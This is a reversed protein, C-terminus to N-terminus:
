SVSQPLYHRYPLKFYRGMIGNVRHSEPVYGHKKLIKTVQRADYRLSNHAIFESVTMEKIEYEFNSKKGNIGSEEALADLVDAEGKLLKEHVKNRKALHELETPALRFCSSKDKAKVIYYIQAWLQLADFPAIQTNYDIVLNDDLPITLFRRNGTEDILYEIDNVTGAIATRRPYTLFTRGYPVRYEDVSNTIFSKVLDIDKRMTSGIEGLEVIWKDTIQMVSDKNRPDLCMGGGFYQPALALHELFRTKGIGQKGQLVLVMDASFPARIDNYLVCVCQMLWKQIFIRSYIGEETDAPIKLINYIETVRDKGDWETHTILELIPNYKRRTALLLIYKAIVQSTVGKYELKLADELITPINEDLHEASERNDFGSFDIKKTIDNFRMNYGHSDVYSLFDAFQIVKRKPKDENSSTGGALALASSSDSRPTYRNQVSDFAKQVTMDIIDTREAWKGSALGSLLFVEKVADAGYDGFYFTLYNCLAQVAESQSSYGLGDFSGSFLAKAKAGNKAHFMANLRNQLDNSSLRSAGGEEGTTITTINEEKHQKTTHTDKPTPEASHLPLPASVSEPASRLMYTDIFRLFNETQDSLYDPSSPTKNGTFTFYRNTLGSIYCELELDSRKFFYSDKYNIPVKEPRVLFIIHVGKGSPSYESYTDHFLTLLGKTYPNVNIQHADIDIGCVLYKEVLGFMLGIGYRNNATQLIAEDYSLWTLPNNVKSLPKKTYSGDRRQFYEWNTWMKCHKLNDLQLQM